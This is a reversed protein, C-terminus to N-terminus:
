IYKDWDKNQHINKNQKIEYPPIPLQWRFDTSNIKYIAQNKKYDVKELKIKNRKADFYRIGEGLFEKQKETLMEAITVIPTSAKRLLLLNNITTIAETNKRLKYLCEAKIFYLEAIRIAAIPTPETDTIKTRYKGLHNVNIVSNDLMRFPKTIFSSEKRIDDATLTILRNIYYEDNNHNSDYISSFYSSTNEFALLVEDKNELNQWMATFSTKNITSTAILENCLKIAKEYKNWNMYVKALLAKASRKSFRFVTKNGENFLAIAQLLLSETEKYSNELTSRPLEESAIKNKLIIGLENKKTENYTPTYIEILEFFAYAKLCLTQAHIYQLEKKEKKNTTKIFPIRNLLVNAKNITSYYEAWISKSLSILEATKWHYLNYSYKNDDITHNPYFDDALISFDIKNKPYAIYISSLAENAIAVNDIADLGTIEDEVPIDLSCSITIFCM